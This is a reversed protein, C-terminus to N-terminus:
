SSTVKQHLPDEPPLPSSGRFQSWEIGLKRMRARLTHPNIGLVKAAGFPGEIRGHCAELARRIHEAMAEDLTAIRSPHASPPPQSPPAQPTRMSTAGLAARVDLRKGNGLITAREIVAALERVNGPWAYGLLLELDSASPTLGSGGLRRGARDAFHAALAPLDELRERLAPLRIPFVSLRYWLDERFKGETVMAELHRHTAAVIRVDVRITQNGGVRELTGDQLVRLLRVQAALPLEGIEDLFLTGGDAREFWGKRTSTAGTFSGKEHGFLESDVLETPIAGCNIRVVPGKGRRSRAHIARAIVEKGSGTDGLILVPADTPAVQEVREMIISLGGTEGIVVESLDHRELRSLLAERDAELAERMRALEHLRQDNEFAVGLPRIAPALGDLHERTIAAKPRVVLLAVGVPKGDAVLPVAIVTHAVDKQTLADALPSEGRGVVTSDEKRLLKTLESASRGSLETRAPWRHPATAGDPAGVAITVLRMPDRDLRRIVLADLPVHAALIAFVRQVSEELELHQCVERWLQAELSM